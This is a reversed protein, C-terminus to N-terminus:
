YKIIYGTNGKSNGVGRFNFRVCTCGLNRSLYQCLAVVVNNEMDGGLMPMPHTIVIGLDDFVTPVRDAPLVTVRAELEDKSDIVPVFIKNEHYKTNNNNREM